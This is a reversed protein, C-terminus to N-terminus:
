SFERQTTSILHYSILWVGRSTSCRLNGMKHQNSGRIINTLGQSRKHCGNKKRRDEWCERQMQGCAPWWGLSPGMVWLEGGGKLFFFGVFFVTETPIIQHGLYGSLSTHTAATPRPSISCFSCWWWKGKGSPFPISFTCGLYKPSMSWMRKADQYQHGVRVKGGTVGGGKETELWLDECPWSGWLWHTCCTGNWDSWTTIKRSALREGEQWETVFSQDPSFQVHAARTKSQSGQRLWQRVSKKWM